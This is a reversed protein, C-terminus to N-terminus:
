CINGAMDNKCKLGENRSYVDDEVNSLSLSPEKHILLCRWAKARGGMDEVNSVRPEQTSHVLHIELYPRAAQSINGVV